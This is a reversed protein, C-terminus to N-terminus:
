FKCVTQQFYMYIYRFMIILTSQPSHHTNIAEYNTAMFCKMFHGADSLTQLTIEYYSKWPINTNYVIIHSYKCSFDVSFQCFLMSLRSANRCNSGWWIIHFSHLFIIYLYFTISTNHRWLSTLIVDCYVDASPFCDVVFFLFNYLIICNYNLWLTSTYLIQFQSNEGFM